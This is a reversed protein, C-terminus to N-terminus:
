RIFVESKPNMLLRLLKSNTESILQCINNRIKPLDFQHCFGEEDCVILLKPSLEKDNILEVIIYVQDTEAKSKEFRIKCNHGVRNPLTDTSAAMVANMHYNSSAMILNRLAKRADSNVHLQQEVFEDQKNLDQAYACLRGTSLSSKKSRSNLSEVLESSSAIQYFINKARQIQEDDSINIEVM